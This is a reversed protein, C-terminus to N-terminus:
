EMEMPNYPKASVTAKVDDPITVGSSTLASVPDACYNKYIKRVTERNTKVIDAKAWLYIPKYGHVKELGNLLFDFHGRTDTIRLVLGPLGNFKYPGYPMVIDPSYWAIYTRGFLETEAKNCKYGAITSDGEMLKWKMPPCNEVYQYKKNRLGATRQVIYQSKNKDFVIGEKFQTKKLTSLM